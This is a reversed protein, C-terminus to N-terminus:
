WTWGWGVMMAVLWTGLHLMQGKESCRWPHHPSFCGHNAPSLSCHPVTPLNQKSISTPMKKGSSSPSGHIFIIVLGHLHQPSGMQQATPRAQCLSVTCLGGNHETLHSTLSHPSGSETQTESAKLCGIIDLLCQVAYMQQLCTHCHLSGMQSEQPKDKSDETTM